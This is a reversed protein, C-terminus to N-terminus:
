NVNIKEVSFGIVDVLDSIHVWVCACLVFSPLPHTTLSL